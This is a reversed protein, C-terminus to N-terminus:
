ENIKNEKELNRLFELCESFVLKHKFKRSLDNAELYLEFVARKSTLGFKNQYLDVAIFKNERKKKSTVTAM